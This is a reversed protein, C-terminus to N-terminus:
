YKGYRELSFKNGGKFLLDAWYVDSGVKVCSLSVIDQVYTDCPQPPLASSNQLSFTIGDFILNAKYNVGEYKVCSLALNTGDFSSCKKFESSKVDIKKNKYIATFATTYEGYTDHYFKIKFYTNPSVPYGYGGASKNLFSISDNLTIKVDKIGEGVSYFNDGDEDKYIVGTILPANGSTGFDLVNKTECVSAGVEALTDNMINIRHGKSDVGNDYMYLTYAYYPDVATAINEALGSSYGTDAIRVWPSRGDLSTHSFYSNKDMDLCHKKSAKYLLSNSALPQKPAYSITNLPLGENIDLNLRQFEAGPFLRARNLLEIHYQEVSTIDGYDYDDSYVSTSLLLAFLLLLKKM